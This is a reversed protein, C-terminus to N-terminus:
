ILFEQNIHQVISSIQNEFARWFTSLFTLIKRMYLQQMYHKGVKFTLKTLVNKLFQKYTTQIFDIYCLDIFCTPYHTLPHCNTGVPSLGLIVTSTLALLLKVSWSFAFYHTLHYGALLSM